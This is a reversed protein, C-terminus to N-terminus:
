AGEIKTLYFYIRKIFKETSLFIETIKITTNIIILILNATPLIRLVNGYILRCEM